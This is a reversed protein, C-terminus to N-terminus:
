EKHASGTRPSMILRCEQVFCFLTPVVFLSVLVICMGGFTPIAMPVMIDSGKGTSTLVPLLALVTTATTMLCPRVRRRGAEVAAERLQGITTPKRDEITQKLYTGLIVGNDTAIGFLALFGVWVAVSLNIQHMQFLERLNAGFLDVDMFWSQGYLWIMIFGGAWAIPVSLFVIGTTMLSMITEGAGPRTPRFQFYLIIAIVLLALPVLVALRRSARVQNEYAGIFSYSVGAPIVLDGSEIMSDLYAGADNVVDVEARGSVGDFMVYGVLFTDESKIVQPGRVFNMTTLETLPIQKGDPAPVLIDGLTEISDRLERMYRVRVPYRERGEVTWTLPRGGIAVEIVDQVDRVSIGYRGIRERDIDIELYPKGVIRDANVVESRVAPVRKLLREIDLGVREITELDPGKIRVAMKARIGSQLMIIRTEIPQLPPAATTGPLKAARSIEDWIDEPSHIHDRWQRFPRGDDDPILQGREDRVFEDDEYQFRKRRGNDDLIYESKYNIITEVMSIPAPDLASEVRGIKGVVQDVEPVSAIAMDLKALVDTAEGISAHPMTTPMYLFSGEDLPPMFEKGLGPVAHTLKVVAPRSRVSEPLWGLMRDAGLWVMGGAFVPLVLGVLVVFLKNRLCWRLVSAYILQFVWLVLLLSGVLLLVLLLNRLEGAEVGLPEWIRSLILLVLGAVVLNFVLSGAKGVRRISKRVAGVEKKAKRRGMLVHALPPILTVTVIISAVLALTKTWALPRFLKGEAAELAFVPMFGVVTTAVATVVASSVETSAKYIVELTNVSEGDARRAEDLRRVINECLVIGMDVITGVAIAIGSLAVVNADVGLRKMGIFTMLVAMPLLGSILASSRLHMLLLVVVLVTVLVELVLAHNLTDLTEHILGSRDYFPVLTVRSTTGDPMVKSPLGPSIEAIRQKVKKIVALPNDGFRVVVVGGVAEAGAKDLAGRRLAPGITVRAVDRIRVPVGARAKIATTEIDEVSDLFGLGRVVYEAKNVEITRAGVDINSKRVANFVDRLTVGYSRMADPDVDIQYERVFGGISAVEAVGRASQLAPKVIWDQVSRLEQPDWGGTPNGQEDRGELTYWFVQGLATADPGLTPAVGTPLTGAPLSSLKELIRARSWYFEVDEDFIVYITSFGLMSFSRVSKVGPMGMLASALPYSVQDEMDQPSRGPWPTFVIQQNEGIDPIADVPVPDRDIGPINWDFPANYVGAAMIVLAAIAVVPKQELCFRILRSLFSVRETM